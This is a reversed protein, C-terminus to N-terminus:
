VESSIFVNETMRNLNWKNVDSSDYHSENTSHHLIRTTSECNESGLFNKRKYFLFSLHEIKFIRDIWFKMDWKGLM